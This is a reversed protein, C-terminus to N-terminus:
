LSVEQEKLAAETIAVPYAFGYRYVPHPLRFAEGVPNVDVLAGMPGRRWGLVSGEALMRVRRRKRPGGERSGCWGGVTVLRYAAGEARLLPLDARQPAVRSLTVVYGAEEPAPLAEVDQWQSWTFGGHGTSRLGGLGGDALLDLAQIVRGVWPEEMEIAFWLGCPRAFTVRGTYFLNSRNTIRDVTVRPVIDVGWLRLAGAPEDARYGLAEAMQAREEPTAWVEGEQLVNADDLWTDLPSGALWARFLRESVYRVRKARKGWALWRERDAVPPESAPAPFLRVEGVFPFASTLLLPPMAPQNLFPSLWGELEGPWIQAWTDVLAAFLTDSPVYALSEESGIGVEGIHLPGSPHLRYVYAM